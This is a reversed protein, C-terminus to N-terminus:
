ICIDCPNGGTATVFPDIGGCDGCVEAAARCGGRCSKKYRCSRCKEPIQDAYKLMPDNNIITKLDSDFLNGVITASHNCPRVNGMPDVTPYASRTGVSCNPFHVNPYATTDLVCPPIPVGFSIDIGYRKVGAEAIRLTEKLDEISPMLESAREVGAGGVNFRNLLIGQVGLAVNLELTEEWDEINRRTAVFTTSVPGGISRVSAIAEILSEFSSRGVLTNHTDPNASLLTFQFMQVGAERLEVAREPTLLTGNTILNCPVKKSAHRVLDVLDLRILPEGGTISLLQPKYDLIRDLIHIMQQTDLSNSSYSQQKWVNYCFLCSQNCDPTVEWNITKYGAAQLLWPLVMSDWIVM